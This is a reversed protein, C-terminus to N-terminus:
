FNNSKFTINGKNTFITFDVITKDLCNNSSHGDTFPSKLAYRQDTEITLVDGYARLSNKQYKTFECRESNMTIKSVVVNDETILCKIIPTEETVTRRESKDGCSQLNIKGRSDAPGCSYGTSVYTQYSSQIKEFKCTEIVKCEVLPPTVLVCFMLLQKM